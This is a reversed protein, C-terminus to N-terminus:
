SSLIWVQFEILRSPCPGPDLDFDPVPGCDCGFGFGSVLGSGPASGCDQDSDSGSGFDPALSLIPLDSYRRALNQGWQMEAM